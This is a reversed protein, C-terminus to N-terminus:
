SYAEQWPTMTCLLRAGGKVHYLQQASCFGSIDGISHQIPHITDHQSSFRQPALIWGDSDLCHQGDAALSLLDKVVRAVELPESQLALQHPNNLLQKVTWIQIHAVASGNQLAPITANVFGSYQLTCCDTHECASMCRHTHESASCQILYDM